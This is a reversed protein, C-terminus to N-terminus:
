TNLPICIIFRSPERPCAPFHGLAGLSVTSLLHSAPTSHVPLGVASTSNSDHSCILIFLCVQLPVKVIWRVPGLPPQFSLPWCHCTPPLQHARSYRRGYNHCNMHLWSPIIHAYKGTAVALGFPFPCKCKEQFARNSQTFDPKAHRFRRKSTSM